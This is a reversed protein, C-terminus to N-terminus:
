YKLRRNKYKQRISLNKDEQQSQTSEKTDGKEPSSMREFKKEIKVDGNIKKNGDKRYRNEMEKRNNFSISKKMNKIEEKKIEEEDEFSRSNSNEDSDYGFKEEQKKQFSRKFYKLPNLSFDSYFNEKKKESKKNDKKYSIIDKPEKPYFDDKTLPKSKHTSIHSYSEENDYFEDDETSKKTSVKARLHKRKKNKESKESYKDFDKPYIVKAEKINKTFDDIKNNKDIIESDKKNNKDNIKSDNDKKNNKDIIKNNNNKDEKNNKDIIKSDNDRKNKKDIIISENDRKNNNENSNINIVNEIIIDNNNKNKTNNNKKINNYKTNNNAKKDSDNINNTIDSIDIIKNNKENEIKNNNEIKIIDIEENKPKVLEIINNNNNIIINNNKIHFSDGDKSNNMYKDIVKITNDDGYNDDNLNNLSKETNNITMIDSINKDININSYDENISSPTIKVRDNKYNHIVHKKYPTSFPSLISNSNNVSGNNNNSNSNSNNSNMHKPKKPSYIFNNEDEPHCEEPSFFKQENENNDNDKNEKNESSSSYNNEDDLQNGESIPTLSTTNCIRENPINVKPSLYLDRRYNSLNNNFNSKPINVLQYAYEFIPKLPRIGGYAFFQLRKRYYDVARTKYLINPPFQKLKPFDFNIFEILKKNGGLFLKKLENNNLGNLDNIVIQSIEHPFQFHDQVCEKCIFVGNNISIYEPEETGCEFCVNNIEDSQIQNIMKLKENSINNIINNEDKNKHFHM